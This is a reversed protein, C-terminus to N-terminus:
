KKKYYDMFVNRLKKRNASHPVFHVIKSESSLSRMTTSGQQSGHEQGPLVGLLAPKVNTLVRKPFFIGASRLM